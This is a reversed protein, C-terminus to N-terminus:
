DSITGEDKQNTTHSQENQFLKREMCLGDMLGVILHFVYLTKEQEKAGPRGAILGNRYHDHFLPSNCLVSNEPSVVSISPDTLIQTNLRRSEAKWVPQSSAVRNKTVKRTKFLPEAQIANKTKGSEFVGARPQFM